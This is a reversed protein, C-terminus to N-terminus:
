KEIKLVNTWIGESEDDPIISQHEAYELQAITEFIRISCFNGSM